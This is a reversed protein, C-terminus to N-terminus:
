FPLEQNLEDEDIGQNVFDNSQPAPASNESKSTCFEAKEVIVDTTYVTQGEKNQYSGTQIRGSIAIKSGKQFYKGIFEASHAFAKISIFDSEYKGTEKNKYDRQVAITNTLMATANQGSSYMVEVDRCLNGILDVRNM